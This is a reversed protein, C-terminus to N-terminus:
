LMSPKKILLDEFKYQTWDISIWNQLIEKLNGSLGSIDITLISM